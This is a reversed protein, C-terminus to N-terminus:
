GSGNRLVEGYRALVALMKPSLSLEVARADDRCRRQQILGLQRLQRLRRQVTAVSGVDLLFLQKMTLPMRAGQHYGIECVLDRDELTRLFHLQRKEFDRFGHLLRCASFASSRKDRLGAPLRARRTMCGSYSRPARPQQGRDLLRQPAKLILKITLNQTYVAKHLPKPCHTQALDIGPGPPAKADWCAM